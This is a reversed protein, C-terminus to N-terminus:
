FIGGGHRVEAQGLVLNKALIEVMVEVESAGSELAM